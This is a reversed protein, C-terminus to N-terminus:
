VDSLLQDTPGSFMNVRMFFTINEKKWALQASQYSLPRRTKYKIVEILLSVGKSFGQFLVMYVTTSYSLERCYSM